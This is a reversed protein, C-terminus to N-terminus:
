IQAFSINMSHEPSIKYGQLAEKAAGSENETLFEIFAIKRSKVMRVKIFGPFQAFLPYLKTANTKRPLNSVLLISGANSYTIRLPRFYYNFGQMGRIANTASSIDKFEVFAEGRKVSASTVVIDTINGFKSFQERLSKKLSNKRVAKNINSIHITRNPQEKFTEIGEAVTVDSSTKSYLLTKEPIDVEVNESLNEILITHTQQEESKGIDNKEVVDNSDTKSYAIFIPKDDLAYGQMERLANTASSVEKYVVFAQGCMTSSQLAIINIIQGFTSFIAHLSKKLVDTTVDEDLNNIYITSNPQINM